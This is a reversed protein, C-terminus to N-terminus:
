RGPPHRVLSRPHSTFHFTVSLTCGATGWMRLIFSTISCPSRRVHPEWATFTLIKVAYDQIRNHAMQFSSVLWSRPDGAVANAYLEEIVEVAIRSAEQGGEYGGMGDAVIALRGKLLFQQDDAPEWYSYRDECKRQCGVDSLAALEIGSRVRM